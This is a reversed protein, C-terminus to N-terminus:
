AALATLIADPGSMDHIYRSTISLSSHGLRDRVAALPVAPDNALWSAHSHRADHVRLTPVGAAKVAPKWIRRFNSRSLYGGRAARFLYGDRAGALLREGLELPVVIDRTANKSKGYAKVVPRGGVETIVRRGVHLVAYGEHVEVHEPGLGMAEGYRMGTQFLTHVLTRYHVPVSAEIVRAQERTAVTMERNRVPSIAMEPMKDLIEEDIAARCMARLVTRVHGVTASSLKGAELKRFFTKCKATDLDAVCVGGLERVVHQLLAGYSERSTAELRHGSLWAHAYGAVTVRGRKTGAHVEVTAPPNALAEAHEAAKLAERATDFTGASRQRGQANRYLGVHRGNRERTSAM